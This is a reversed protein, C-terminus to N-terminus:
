TAQIRHNDDTNRGSGATGHMTVGMSASRPIFASTSRRTPPMSHTSRGVSASARCTQARRPQSFPFYLVIYRVLSDGRHGLRYPQSKSIVLRECGQPSKSCTATAVLESSPLWRLGSRASRQVPQHECRFDATDNPMCNSGRLTLDPASQYSRFRFAFISAIASLIAVMITVPVAPGHFDGSLRHLNSCPRADPGM